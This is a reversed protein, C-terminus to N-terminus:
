GLGVAVILRQSISFLSVPYLIWATKESCAGKEILSLRSGHFSNEYGTEHSLEVLRGTTTKILMTYFHFGPYFM